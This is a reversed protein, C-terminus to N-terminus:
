NENRAFVRLAGSWSKESRLILLPVAVVGNNLMVFIPFILVDFRATFGAALVGAFGAVTGLVWTATTETEPQKVAKHITPLLGITGVIIGGYLAFAAQHFVVWCALGIGAGALSIVDLRKLGGVGRPISLIFVVLVSIAQAGILWLSARAGLALQSAFSIGALVSFIFWTIRQPKTKKRLIDRVYPVYAVLNLVASLIGFVSEMSLLKIIRVKRNNYTM